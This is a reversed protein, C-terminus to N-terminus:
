RAKGAEEKGPPPQDADPPAIKAQDVGPTTDYSESM